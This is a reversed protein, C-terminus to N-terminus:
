IYKEFKRNLSKEESKRHRYIEKKAVHSHNEKRSLIQHNNSPHKPIKSIETKNRTMMENIPNVAPACRNYACRVKTAVHCSLSKM